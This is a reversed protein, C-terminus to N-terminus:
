GRPRDVAQAERDSDETEIGHNKHAASLAAPPTDIQPHPLSERPLRATRPLWIPPLWTPPPEPSDTESTLSAQFWAYATTLQCGSALKSAIALAGVKNALHSLVRLGYKRRPSFEKLSIANVKYDGVEPTRGFAEQIGAAFSKRWKEKLMQHAALLDEAHQGFDGSLAHPMGSNNRLYAAKHATTLRWFSLMKTTYGMYGSGRAPFERDLNLSEILTKISELTYTPM